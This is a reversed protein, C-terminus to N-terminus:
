LKLSSFRVNNYLDVNIPEIDHGYEDNQVKIIRKTIVRYTASDNYPTFNQLYDVFVVYEDDNKVWTKVIKTQETNFQYGVRELTIKVFDTQPKKVFILITPRDIQDIIKDFASYYPYYNKFNFTYYWKNINGNFQNHYPSGDSNSYDVIGILTFPREILEDQMNKVFVQDQMEIRDIVARQANDFNLRDEGFLISNLSIVFILMALFKKM